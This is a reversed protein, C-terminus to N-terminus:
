KTRENNATVSEYISWPIWRGRVQAVIWPTDMLVVPNDQCLQACEFSMIQNPKAVLHVPCDGFGSLWSANNQHLVPVRVGFGVTFCDWPLISNITVRWGYINVTWWDGVAEAFGTGPPAMGTRNYVVFRLDSLDFVKGAPVQVAGIQHFPGLLAPVIPPDHFGLIRHDQSLFTTGGTGLMTSYAELTLRTLVPQCKESITVIDVGHASAVTPQGPAGPVPSYPQRGGGGSQTTM